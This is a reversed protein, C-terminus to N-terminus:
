MVKDGPFNQFNYDTKLFHFNLTVYHSDYLQCNTPLSLVNELKVSFFYRWIYIILDTFCVKLLIINVWIWCNLAHKFAPLFEVQKIQMVGELCNNEEYLFWCLLRKLRDPVKHLKFFTFVGM